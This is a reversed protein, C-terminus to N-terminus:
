QNNRKKKKKPTDGTLNSSRKKLSRNENDIGNELHEDNSEGNEIDADSEKINTIPVSSFDINELGESNAQMRLSRTEKKLKAKDKNKVKKNRKKTPVNDDDQSAESQTENNDNDHNGNTLQMKVLTPIKLIRCLKSYAHKADKSLTTHSRYDRVLNGITVWDFNDNEGCNRISFLLNLLQCVFKEKVKCNQETSILENFLKMTSENLKIEVQEVMKKFGEPDAQRLRHNNYFLKLLELAQSRRFPRIENNFSYEALSPILAFNGDWNYQLIQKFLVIPILSDRKIFFSELAEKLINVIPSKSKKKIKKPTLKASSEKLVMQSSRIIFLVCESIEKEMDQYIFASKSGKEIFSNLMDLLIQETVDDVSSFKKNSTLKKLCSRVRNELPKQHIDRISFELVQLLMIAIELCLLLSPESDLYMDILDLVRVRFHTLTKDDKNQKTNKGKSKKINKFAEALAEDLKKGEEEDMQDMDVSEDDTQYGNHHLADRVAMRLKDAATEQEEDLVDEDVDSIDSEVSKESGNESEESDNDSKEEGDEDDDNEDSDDDDDDEKKMKTLPNDENKPDLVELIQHVAQVTLHPCLYPFVCGIVSRLLHSNQSLLSLFLDIVVEIWMPEDANENNAKTTLREYCSHLEKLAGEAMSFDSLLQLGMQLLLTHFVPIIDNHKKSKKSELKNVLTIMKTWIQVGEEPLQNRLHDVNNNQFIEEDVHHILSSLFNRLDELKPFKM